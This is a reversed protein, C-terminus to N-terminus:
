LFETFPPHTGTFSVSHKPSFVAFALPGVRALFVVPTHSASTAPSHQSVAVEVLFVTFVLAVFPSSVAAKVKLRTLLVVQAM